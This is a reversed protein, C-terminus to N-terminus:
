QHHFVGNFNNKVSVVAFSGSSGDDIEQSFNNDDFFLHQCINNYFRGGGQAAASPM